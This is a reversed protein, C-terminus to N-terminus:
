IQFEKIKLEKLEPFVTLFTDTKYFVNKSIDEPEIIEYKLFIGFIIQFLSLSMPFGKQNILNLETNINNFILKLEKNVKRSQWISLKNKILAFINDVVRSYDKPAIENPIKGNEFCEKIFNLIKIKIDIEPWKYSTIQKNVDKASLAIMDLQEVSAKLQSALRLIKWDINKSKYALDHTTVSWAHEFASRIQIEFKIDYIEKNIEQNPPILKGIFRTSDFRFTDFNKFTSGKKRLDIETFANKLFDIVEEEYSLNPVILICGIFDDIEVWSSYRGTEIKESISDLKKIRSTYAFLHKKAYNMLTQDLASQIFEFYPLYLKYKTSIKSDM